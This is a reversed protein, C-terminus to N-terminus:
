SEHAFAYFNRAFKKRDEIFTLFNLTKELYKSGQLALKVKPSRFLNFYGRMAMMFAAQIDADAVNHCGVFPCVFVASNGREKAFQNLKRQPVQPIFKQLTESRSHKKSVVPPRAFDKVLKMFEKVGEKTGKFNYNKKVDRNQSYGCVNGKSTHITLINGERAIVKAKGVDDQNFEYISRACAVCIYSSAYASLHTGPTKYKEGWVHTHQQKDAETEPYVDSRKVSNYVKTVRGSGTEFNSISYEYVVGASEKTLIDHIQNRVSGIANKRVEAVTTSPV